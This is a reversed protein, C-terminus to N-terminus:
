KGKRFLYLYEDKQLDVSSHIVVVNYGLEKLMNIDSEPPVFDHENFIICDIDKPKESFFLECIKEWAFDQNIRVLFVPYDIIDHGIYLSHM